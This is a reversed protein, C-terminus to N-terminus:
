KECGTGAELFPKIRNVTNPHTSLMNGLGEAQEALPQESNKGTERNANLGEPDLRLLIDAYAKPPLCAKILAALAFHDAQTEHAQSYHMELLFGSLGSATSSADGTVAALILGSVVSQISQRFAHRHKVHGLEHALVAIIEADFKALTILQDTLVIIGGPLTLANAGIEGGDRFELRYRPCDSISACLTHLGSAIGSQKPVPTKSPHFYGFKHDFLGLVQEGLRTELEASTKNVVYGALKPIGYEFFAWGTMLTLVLSLCVWALHNELYHLVSHFKHNPQTLIMELPKIDGAELRGGDALNIIRKGSGLKAEVHIDSLPYARKTEDALFAIGPQIGTVVEVTVAQSRATLGDFYDAQFLM